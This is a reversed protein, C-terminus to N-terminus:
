GVAKPTGRDPIKEINNLTKVKVIGEDAKIVFLKCDGIKKYSTNCHDNFKCDSEYM